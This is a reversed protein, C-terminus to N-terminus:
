NARAPNNKLQNLMKHYKPQEASHQKFYSEIKYDPNLVEFLNALAPATQATEGPLGHFLEPQPRTNASVNFLNSM